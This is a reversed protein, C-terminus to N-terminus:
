EREVQPDLDKAREQAKKEAQKLKEAEADSDPEAQRALKETDHSDVFESKDRNAERASERDGEGGDQKVKRETM